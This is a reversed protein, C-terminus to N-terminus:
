HVGGCLAQDSKGVEFGGVIIFSKVVVQQRRALELQVECSTGVRKWVVVM